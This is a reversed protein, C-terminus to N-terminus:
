PIRYSIHIEVVSAAGPEIKMTETTSLACADLATKGSAKIVAARTVKGQVDFAVELALSGQFAPDSFLVKVHCNRIRSGQKLVAARVESPVSAAMEITTDSLQAKPTEYPGLPLITGKTTGTTVPGATVTM